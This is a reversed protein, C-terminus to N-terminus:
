FIRRIHLRITHESRGIAAAVDRVTNGEVLLVAARSEAPSVRARGPRPRVKLMGGSHPRVPVAEFRKQPAGSARSSSPPVAKSGSSLSTASAPSPMAAGSPVPVTVAEAVPREEAPSPARVWRTPARQFM